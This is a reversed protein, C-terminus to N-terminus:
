HIFDTEDQCNTPRHPGHVARWFVYKKFIFQCAQLGYRSFCLFGMTLETAIEIPM